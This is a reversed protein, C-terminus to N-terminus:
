NPLKFQKRKKSLVTSENEKELPTIEGLFAEFMAVVNQNALYLREQLINCMVRYVHLGIDPYSESLTTFDELSIKLAVIDSLVRITASRISVSCLSREGVLPLVQREMNAEEVAVVFDDGSVSKRIVEIKGELIIFGYRGVDGERFLIKGKKIHQKKISSIFDILEVHDEIGKFLDIKSVLKKVEQKSLKRM